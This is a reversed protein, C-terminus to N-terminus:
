NGPVGRVQGPRCQIAKDQLTVVQIRKTGTKSLMLVSKLFM